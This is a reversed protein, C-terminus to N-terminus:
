RNKDGMAKILADLRPAEAALRDVDRAHRRVDVGSMDLGFLMFNTALRGYASGSAGRTLQHLQCVSELRHLVAANMNRPPVLCNYKKNTL